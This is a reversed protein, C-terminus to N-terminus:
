NMGIVLVYTGLSTVYVKFQTACVGLDVMCNEVSPGVVQKLVLDM